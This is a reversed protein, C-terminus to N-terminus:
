MSAVRSGAASPMTTTEATRRLLGSNRMESSTPKAMAAQTSSSTVCIPGASISSTPPIAPAKRNRPLGSSALGSSGFGHAEPLEEDDDEGVVQQGEAVAAGHERQELM